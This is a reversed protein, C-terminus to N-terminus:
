YNELLYIFQLIYSVLPHIGIEFDQLFAILKNLNLLGKDEKIDEFTYEGKM